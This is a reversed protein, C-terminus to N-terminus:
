RAAMSRGAYGYGHGGTGMAVRVWPWGYGHSGPLLCLLGKSPLLRLRQDCCVSKLDSTASYRCGLPLWAVRERPPASHM